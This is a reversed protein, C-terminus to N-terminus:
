SVIMRGGAFDEGKSLNALDVLEGTPLESGVSRDNEDDGFATM